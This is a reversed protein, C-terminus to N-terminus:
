HRPPGGAPASGPMGPMAGGIMTKFEEPSMARALAEDM